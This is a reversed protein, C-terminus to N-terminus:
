KIYIYRYQEIYLFRSRLPNKIISGVIVHVKCGLFIYAGESIRCEPSVLCQVFQKVEYLVSHNKKKEKEKLSTLIKIFYFNNTLGKRITFIDLDMLHIHPWGQLCTNSLNM